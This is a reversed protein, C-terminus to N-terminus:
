LKVAYEGLLEGMRIFDKHDDLFLCRSWLLGFYLPSVVMAENFLVMIMFQMFRQVETKDDVM